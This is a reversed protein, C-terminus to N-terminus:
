ASYLNPPPVKPLLWLAGAGLNSWLCPLLLSRHLFTSVVSSADVLQCGLVDDLALEENSFASIHIGMLHFDFEASLVINDCRSCENIVCWMLLSKDSPIIM